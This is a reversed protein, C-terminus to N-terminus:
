DMGLWRYLPSSSHSVLVDRAMSYILHQLAETYHCLTYDYDAGSM